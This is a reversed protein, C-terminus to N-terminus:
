PLLHAVAIEQDASLRSEAHPRNRGRKQVVVGKILEVRENEAITRNEILQDYQGVSFRYLGLGLWRTLTTPQQDSLSTAVTAM